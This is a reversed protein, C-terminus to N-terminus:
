AYGSLLGPLVTRFHPHHIWKFVAELEELSMGIEECFFYFFSNYDLREIAEKKLLKKTLDDSMGKILCINAYKLM